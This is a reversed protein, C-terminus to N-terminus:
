VPLAERRVNRLFPSGGREFQARSVFVPSIVVDHQLSLEAVLDSTRKLCDFPDVENRMVVLLDIDSDPRADGLARSGFLWLQDVQQGLRGMLAQHLGKLLADLERRTM